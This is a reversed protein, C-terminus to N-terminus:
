TFCVENYHVNLWCGPICLTAVGVYVILYLTQGCRTRPPLRKDHFSLKFLEVQETFWSHLFPLMELIFANVRLFSFLFSQAASRPM